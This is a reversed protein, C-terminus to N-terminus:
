GICSTEGLIACSAKEDVCPSSRVFAAVAAASDSERCAAELRVLERSLLSRQELLHNFHADCAPIPPPYRRIEEQIPRRMSELHRKLRGWLPHRSESEVHSIMANTELYICM